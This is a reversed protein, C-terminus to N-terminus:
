TAKPFLGGSFADSPSYHQYPIPQNYGMQMNMPQVMPQQMNPVLPQITPQNFGLSIGLQPQQPVLTQINNNMAPTHLPFGPQQQPVIPQIPVISQPKNGGYIARYVPDLEEAQQQPQVVNNVPNVVNNVVPQQVPQQTSKVVLDTDIPINNIEAKYLNLNDLETIDVNDIPLRGSDATEESVARLSDILENYRLALKYYLKYASITGPAILDESVEKITNENDLDELLFNCILKYIIIDKNRLAVKYVKTEKTAKELEDLLPCTLTATRCFKVNSRGNPKAIYLSLFGKGLANINKLMDIWHKISNDDVLQKVGTANAERLSKLFKSVKLPITISNQVEKSYALTLLLLGCSFFTHSLRLEITSKLKKLSLSDGKLVDERFTNFPIKIITGKGDVYDVATAIHERTPLVLPKNDVLVQITPSEKDKLDRPLKIYGDETVVFGLGNLLTTYLDILAM